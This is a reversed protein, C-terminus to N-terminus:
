PARRLVPLPPLPVPCAYSYTRAPLSLTECPRCSASSKVSFTADHIDACGLLLVIWVADIRAFFPCTQAVICRHRQLRALEVPQSRQVIAEVELLDLVNIQRQRSQERDIDIRHLAQIVCLALEEVDAVALHGVDDADGA